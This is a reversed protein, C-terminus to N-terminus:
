LTRPSFRRGRQVLEVRESPLFMQRIADAKGIGGNRTAETTARRRSSAPTFSYGRM